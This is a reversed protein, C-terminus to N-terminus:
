STREHYALATMTGYGTEHRLFTSEGRPNSAYLFRGSLSPSVM